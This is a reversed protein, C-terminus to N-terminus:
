FTRQYTSPKKRQQKWKLDMFVVVTTRPHSLALNKEHRAQLEKSTLALLWESSKDHTLDRKELQCTDCLLVACSSSSKSLILKHFAPTPVQLQLVPRAASVRSCRDGSKLPFSARTTKTCLLCSHSSEFIAKDTKFLMQLIKWLALFTTKM